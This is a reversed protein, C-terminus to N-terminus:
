QIRFSFLDYEDLSCWLAHFSEIWDLPNWINSNSEQGACGVEWHLHHFTLHHRDEDREQHLIRPRPGQLDAWSNGTFELCDAWDCNQSNLCRTRPCYISSPLVNIINCSPYLVGTVSVQDEKRKDKRQREQREQEERYLEDCVAESVNKHSDLVRGKDVHTILCKIHHAKLSCHKKGM